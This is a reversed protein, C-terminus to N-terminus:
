RLTVLWWLWTEGPFVRDLAKSRASWAGKTLKRHRRVSEDGYRRLVQMNDNRNVVTDALGPRALGIRM